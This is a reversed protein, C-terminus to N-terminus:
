MRDGVYLYEVFRIKSLGFYAKMLLLDNVVSAFSSKPPGDNESHNGNFGPMYQITTAEIFM